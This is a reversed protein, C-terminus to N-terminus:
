GGFTPAALPAVVRAAQEATINEAGAQTAAAIFEEVTPLRLLLSQGASSVVIMPNGEAVRLLEIATVLVTPWGGDSAHREAPALEPM